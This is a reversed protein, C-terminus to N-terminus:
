DQLKLYKLIMWNNLMDQKVFMLGNESCKKDIDTFDSQYFGSLILVSGKLMCETYLRIENLLVNKNINAFIIDFKKNELMNIDGHLVNIGSIKNLGINEICNNYSWEDIDVATIDAAGRMACLIALIGTGCGLDLIKKGMTEIQLIEKMMLSTTEHHGTGFSMKPDIIIQYKIDPYDQHFSSRVVCQEDFIIPEFYNKEWTENWNEAKIKKSKFEIKFAPNETIKLSDNFNDNFFDVKIYALLGFEKEIFSEFGIESLEAMLIESITADFPEIHCEVEIYDM